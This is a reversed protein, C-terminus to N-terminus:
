EYIALSEPSHFHRSRQQGTTGSSWFVTTREEPPLSTLELEKFASTPIAPIDAVNSVMEPTIGRLGCWRRYAANNAFQLAFLELALDEFRFPPGTAAERQPGTAWLMYERLRAHYAAFPQENTMATKNRICPQNEAVAPRDGRSHHLARAIELSSRPKTQLPAFRLQNAQKQIPCRVIKGNPIVKM